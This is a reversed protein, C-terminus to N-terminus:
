SDQMVKLCDRLEGPFCPYQRWSNGYLRIIKMARVKTSSRGGIQLLGLLKKVAGLMLMDELVRETPLFSCVLWLIKVGLKTGLESARLIKKAM